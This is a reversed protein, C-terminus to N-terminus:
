HREPMLPPIEDFTLCQCVGEQFPLSRPHRPTFHSIPCKATTFDALNFSAETTFVAYEHIPRTIQLQLGYDNNSKYGEDHYHLAGKFELDLATMMRTFIIEDPMYTMADNHYYNFFVKHAIELISTSRYRGAAPGLLENPM